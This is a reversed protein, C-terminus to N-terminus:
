LKEGWAIVADELGNTGAQAVLGSPTDVAVVRGARLVAVRDCLRELEDIFHTVLLISVGRDRM